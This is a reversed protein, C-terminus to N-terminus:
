LGPFKNGNLLIIPSAPKVAPAEIRIKDAEGLKKAEIQHFANSKCM